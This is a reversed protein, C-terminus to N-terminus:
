NLASVASVAASRQQLLVRVRDLVDCLMRRDHEHTLRIVAKQPRLWQVADVEDGPVFSGGIPQMVWYHVQKPRGKHDTYDTRAVQPGVLECRQGTEEAVERLATVPLQENPRRKGKPLSWDDYKPRHVLAIRLEGDAGVRVVIGGAGTIPRGCTSKGM